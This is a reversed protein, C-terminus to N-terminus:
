LQIAAAIEIDKINDCYNCTSVFKKNFLAKLERRIDEPKRDNLKVHETEIKPILGLFTGHAARACMSIEHNFLTVCVYCTSYNKILDSFSFNRREFLGYDNWTRVHRVNFCYGLSKLRAYLKDKVSDAVVSYSSMNFLIKNKQRPQLVSLYELCDGTPMLSGNTILRINKIKHEELCKSIIKSLNPYIFPEGGLIRIEYILDVSLLLTDLDKILEEPSYSIANKYYHMLNSCDKCRLTCKTTLVLDLNSLCIFDKSKLLIRAYQLVLFPLLFLKYIITFVTNDLFPLKNVIRMHHM